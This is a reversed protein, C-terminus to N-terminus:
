LKINSWYCCSNIQRWYKADNIWNLAIVSMALPQYNLHAVM